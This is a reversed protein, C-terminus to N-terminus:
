VNFRFVNIGYPAIVTTNKHPLFTLDGPNILANNWYILFFSQPFQDLCMIDKRRFMFFTAFPTGNKGYPRGKSPESM